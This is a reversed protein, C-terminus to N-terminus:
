SQLMKLRRACPLNTCELPLLSSLKLAGSTLKAERLCFRVDYKQLAGFQPSPMQNM